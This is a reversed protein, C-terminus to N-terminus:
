SEHIVEYLRIFEEVTLSEARRSSEIEAKNLYEEAKNQDSLYEKLNNYITKRRQTFCNKVMENFADFDKVKTNNKPTFQIVVSDVQPKPLFVTKPVKM